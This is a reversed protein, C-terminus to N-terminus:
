EDRHSKIEIEKEEKDGGNEIEVEEIAVEVEKKESMVPLSLEMTRLSPRGIFSGIDTRIRPSIMESTQISLTMTPSIAEKADKKKGKLAKLKAKIKSVVAKATESYHSVLKAVLYLLMGIILVALLVLCIIQLWTPSKLSYVVLFVSWLYVLMSLKEVKCISDHRYPDGKRLVVLYAYFIAILTLAQLLSDYTLVSNIIYVVSKFQILILGWFYMKERYDCYLMGMGLMLTRSKYLSKRYCYLVAFLGLPVVAVWFVMAPVVAVKMFYNWSDTYCQLNRNSQIWKNGSYADLSQCSFYQSLTGIINPQESIILGIFVLLTNKILVENKMKKKILFYVIKFIIIGVMMLLIKAIPSFVVILIKIRFGEELTWKSNLLLCDLSFFILKYQSGVIDSYSFYNYATLNLSMIIAILQGFHTILRIYPGTSAKKADVGLELLRRNEKSYTLFSFVQVIISVLFYMIGRFVSLSYSPCKDCQYGDGSASLFENEVDCQKCVLGNYGEACSDEGLCRGSGTSSCQIVIDSDTSNRWYGGNVKSIVGKTCFSGGPCIECSGNTAYDGERCYECTQTNNNYIEGKVCSRFLIQFWTSVTFRNSEYTMVASKLEGAIGYLSISPNEVTCSGHSCTNITYQLPDQNPELYFRFKLTGVSEDYVKQTLNEGFETALSVFMTLGKLTHSTINKLVFSYYYNQNATSDAFYKSPVVTSPNKQLYEIEVPANSSTITYSLHTPGFSINSLSLDGQGVVFVDSIQISAAPQEVHIYEGGYTATNGNFFSSSISVSTLNTWIAGGRDYASTDVFFCNAALIASLPNADELLLAPGRESHLSSFVTDSISIQSSTASDELKRRRSEAQDFNSSDTSGMLRIASADNGGKIHSFTSSSINGSSPSFVSLVASGEAEFVINQFVCSDLSFRVAEFEFLSGSGLSVGEFTIQSVEIALTEDSLSGKSLARLMSLNTSLAQPNRLVIPDLGTSGKLRRGQILYSSEALDFLPSIEAEAM